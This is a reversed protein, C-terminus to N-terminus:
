RCVIAPEFSDQKRKVKGIVCAYALGASHLESIIKESQDPHASLLMPGSLQPDFLFEALFKHDKDLSQITKTFPLRNQYHSSSRVGEEMAKKMGAYIPLKKVMIECLLPEDPLKAQLSHALGARDINAVVNISEHQCLSPIHAHSVSMHNLIANLYFSRIAYKQYGSFLVGTGLPKTLILDENEKFSRKAWCAESMRGKSLSQLQIGLSCESSSQLVYSNLTMKLDKFVDKLGHLIDNLDKQMAHESGHAVSVMVNAESPSVGLSYMSQCLDGVVVKSFKYLDKSFCHYKSLAQLMYISENKTPDELLKHVSIHGPVRQTHSVQMDEIVQALKPDFLGVGITQSRGMELEQQTNMSELYVSDKLQDHEMKFQKFWQRDLYDKRKKIWRSSFISNGRKYLAKKAGLYVCVFAFVRHSTFLVDVSLQIMTCHLTDIVSTQHARALASSTGLDLKQM